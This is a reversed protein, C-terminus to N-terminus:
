GRGFVLSLLIVVHFCEIDFEGDGL